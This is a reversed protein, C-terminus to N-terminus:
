PRNWDIDEVCNHQCWDRYAKRWQTRSGVDERREPVSAREDRRHDQVAQERDHCLQCHDGTTHDKITAVNGCPCLRRLPPLERKHM